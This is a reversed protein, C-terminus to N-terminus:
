CSESTGFSPCSSKITEPTEPLAAEGLGGRSGAEGEARTGLQQLGPCQTGGPDPSSFPCFPRWVGIRNPMRTLRTGPAGEVGRQGPVAREKNMM